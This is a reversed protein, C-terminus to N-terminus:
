AKGFMGAMRAMNGPETELLREMTYIFASARRSKEEETWHFYADDFIILGATLLIEVTERPYPTNFKQKAIGETVIDALIPALGLVHETIMKQHFLANVPEHLVAPLFDNDDQTQQQQALLVMVVKDEPSLSPDAAIRKAAAVGSDIRRRVIADLVDEKSKFYYYFTGKAIDVASLIDNVTAAEFGKRAFLNEAADLIENKRVEAEKVTRM